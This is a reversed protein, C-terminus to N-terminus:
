KVNEKVNIKSLNVCEMLQGDRYKFFYIDRHYRYLCIKYFGLATTFTNTKIVTGKTLAKEYETKM